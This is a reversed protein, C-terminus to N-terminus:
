SRGLVDRPGFSEGTPHPKLGAVRNRCCSACSGCTTTPRVNSIRSRSTNTTPTRSSSPGPGYLLPKGWRDLLPIDTMYPFVATEFGDVVHMRVPPGELVDEVTVKPELAKVAARVEAPPGVTRFLM